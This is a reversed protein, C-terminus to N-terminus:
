WCRNYYYYRYGYYGYSPYSYYYNQYFPQNFRWYNGYGYYTPRYNYYYYPRQWGRGGFGGFWGYTSSDKSIDAASVSSESSAVVGQSFATALDSSSTLASGEHLRLEVKDTLERGSQDIPVRMILGESQDVIHAFGGSVDASSDGGAAFAPAAFVVALGLLCGFVSSKKM